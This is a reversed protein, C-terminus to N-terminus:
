LLWALLGAAFFALGTARFAIGVDRVAGEPHRRALAPRVLEFLAAYLLGAGGLAIWAADIGAGREYLLLIGAAAFVGSAPIWPWALRTTAPIVGPGFGAFAYLGAFACVATWWVGEGGQRDAILVLAQPASVLTCAVAARRWGLRVSLLVGAALCAGVIALGAPEVGGLVLPTALAVGM